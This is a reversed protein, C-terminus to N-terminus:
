RWGAPAPAGRSTRARPDFDRAIHSVAEVQPAGTTRVFLFEDATPWAVLLWRGDPSWTVGSLRGAGAFLLRERGGAGAVVLESVGHRRRVLAVRRGRPAFAAERAAGLPEASPSTGPLLHTRGGSTVLLRRGDASWSLGSPQAATSARLLVRGSDVDQVRVRGDRRAVALVNARGPRWEAVAGRRLERDGTGDGAVVRVRGRQVYAVRFGSPAWRPRRAGPRALSWHVRGGPEVAVLGGPRTVGVFRARPSWTADDYPGLLRKSGDARVVWTGAPSRVLLSGPSPLRELAAKPARAHRGSGIVDAVWHRVAQGPSTFALLAVLVAALAALAPAPRLLAAGFRARRRQLPATGAAARRRWLAGLWPPPAAEAVREEFAAAVVRSAREGAAEGDPVPVARLREGLREGSM